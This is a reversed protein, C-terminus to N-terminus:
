SLGPAEPPPTWGSLNCSLLRFDQHTYKVPTSGPRRIGDTIVPLAATIIHQTLQSKDKKKNITDLLLLLNEEEIDHLCYFVVADGAQVERIVDYLVGDYRFEDEDLRVFNGDSYPNEIRLVLLSTGPNKGRMTMEAKIKARNIEFIFYYGM